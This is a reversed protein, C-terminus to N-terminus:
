DNLDGREERVLGRGGMLWWLIQENTCDLKKELRGVDEQLSQIEMRNSQIEARNSAVIWIASGIWAVLAILVAIHWDKIQAM